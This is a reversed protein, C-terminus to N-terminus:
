TNTPQSHQELEAHVIERIRNCALRAEQPPAYPNVPTNYAAILYYEDALWFLLLNVGGLGLCQAENVNGTVKAMRRVAPLFKAFLKFFAHDKEEVPGSAAALRGDGACVMAGGVHQAQHLTALAQEIQRVAAAGLSGQEEATNM